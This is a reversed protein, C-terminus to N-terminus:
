RRWATCSYLALPTPAGPPLASRGARQLVRGLAAEIEVPASVHHDDIGSFGVVEFARSMARNVM